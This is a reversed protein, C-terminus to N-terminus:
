WRFRLFRTRIVVQIEFLSNKDGAMPAALALAVGIVWAVTFVLHKRKM